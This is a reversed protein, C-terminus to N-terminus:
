KQLAAAIEDFTVFSSNLCFDGWQCSDFTTQFIFLHQNTQPSTQKLFSYLEQTSPFTPLHQNGPTQLRVGPLEIISSVGRM